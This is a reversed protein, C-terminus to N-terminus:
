LPGKLEVLAFLTVITPAVGSKTPLKMSCSIDNTSGVDVTTVIKALRRKEKLEKEDKAGFVLRATKAHIDEGTQYAELMVPDRTIHALIRLELQSYDASLIKNGKEPVFAQVIPTDEPKDGLAGPARGQWLPMTSRDTLEAAPAASVFILIMLAALCVRAPM